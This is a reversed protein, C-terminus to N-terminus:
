AGVGQLLDSEVRGDRMSVCRPANQAMQRDHTILVITRGAGHLEHFLRLIEASTNSDLNGTPEDALLLAPDNTLSRAIAARQCEGGSLQNPLHQQRHGLGVAACLEACRRRRQRRPVRAYFLPLEVNEEVSLHPVLQFSQFVFGIRRNRIRSLDLDPVRSVDDGALRYTGSSPRDLCGLINLLTSKGSGSPGVIVVYEGSHIDLDIGHLVPVLNTPPGYCRTIQRLELLAPGTAM